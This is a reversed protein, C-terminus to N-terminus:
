RFEVRDWIIVKVNLSMKEWIEDHWAQVKLKDEETPETYPDDIIIIM